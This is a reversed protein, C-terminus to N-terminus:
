RKRIAIAAQHRLDSFDEQTFACYEKINRLTLNAARNITSTIREAGNSATPLQKLPVGGTVICQQGLIACVFVAAAKCSEAWCCELAGQQLTELALGDGLATGCAGTVFAEM